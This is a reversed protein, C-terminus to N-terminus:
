QSLSFGVQLKHQVMQISPPSAVLRRVDARLKRAGGHVLIGRPPRRGIEKQVRRLYHRLQHVDAPTPPGQKCEVVVPTGDRDVLLVDLRTGDKFMRERLRENPYPLLGHERTAWPTTM